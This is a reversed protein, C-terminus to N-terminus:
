VYHDGRTLVCFYDQMTSLLANLKLMIYTPLAGNFKIIQQSFASKPLIHIMKYDASFCM